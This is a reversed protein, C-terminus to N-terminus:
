YEQMALYKGHGTQLLVQGTTCNVSLLGVPSGNKLIEITYYGYFMHAEASVTADTETRDLFDQAIKLARDASIAMTFPTPLNLGSQSQPNIVGSRGLIAIRSYKLNWMMNAGYEPIVRLTGPEVLVEFAGIGTSKEVIRAYASSQFVIIEKLELDSNDLKSLYADVAKKADAITLPKVTIQMRPPNQPIVKGRPMIGQPLINQIVVKQPKNQLRGAIRLAASSLLAAGLVSLIVILSIKMGRTM